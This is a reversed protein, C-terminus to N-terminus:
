YLDFIHITIAKETIIIVVSKLSMVTNCLLLKSATIHPKAKVKNRKDYFSHMDSEKMNTDIFSYNILKVIKHKGIKVYVMKLTKIM